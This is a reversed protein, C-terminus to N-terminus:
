AQPCAVFERVADLLNQKDKEPFYGHYSEKLEMFDAAANVLGARFLGVSRQRVSEDHASQIVLTRTRVDKLRRRTQRMYRYLGVFQRIWLPYEYLKADSVSFEQRYASALADDQGEPFLMIRMSFALQRLSVKCALPTNILVVGAVGGGAACDLSILGGLSHGVLFVRRYRRSAERVRAKVYSPWKEYPTRSFARATGGHGPLLLAMCDLGQRSLEEALFRFRSPSGLIGHIFIVVDKNGNGIMYERHLTNNIM